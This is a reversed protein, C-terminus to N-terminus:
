FVNTDEALELEVVQLPFGNEQRLNVIHNECYPTVRFVGWIIGKDTPRGCREKLPPAKYDCTGEDYEKVDLVVMSKIRKWEENDIKKGNIIM